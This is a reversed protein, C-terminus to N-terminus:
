DDSDPISTEIDTDMGENLQEREDQPVSPIILDDNEDEPENNYNLMIKQNIKNIIIAKNEKTESNIFVNILLLLASIFVAVITLTVGLNYAINAKRLIKRNDKFSDTNAGIEYLLIDKHSKNVLVQFQEVSHSQFLPKTFFVRILMITIVGLLLIIPIVSFIQIWINTDEVSKLFFPIFFICIGIITSAYIKKQRYSAVQKEILEKSKNALFEIKGFNSM